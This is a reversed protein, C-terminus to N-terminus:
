IVYYLKQVFFIMAFSTTMRNNYNTLFISSEETEM